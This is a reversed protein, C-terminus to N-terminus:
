RDIGKIKKICEVVMKTIDNVTMEGVVEHHRWFDKTDMGNQTVKKPGGNEKAEATRLMDLEADTLRLTCRLGFRLFTQIDSAIVLRERNQTYTEVCILYDSIDLREQNKLYQVVKMLDGSDPITYFSIVKADMWLRGCFRDRIPTSSVYGQNDHHYNIDKHMVGAGQAADFTEQGDSEGMVFTVSDESKLSKTIGLEKIIVSNPSAFARGKDAPILKIMETDRTKGLWKVKQSREKM